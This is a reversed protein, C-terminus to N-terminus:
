YLKAYVKLHLEVNKGRDHPEFNIKRFQMKMVSCNIVFYNLRINRQEEPIVMTYSVRIPISNISLLVKNYLTSKTAKKCYFNM